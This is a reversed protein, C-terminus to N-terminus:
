SLLGKDAAGTALGELGPAAQRAVLQHVAGPLRKNTADLSFGAFKSAIKDLVHLHMSFM